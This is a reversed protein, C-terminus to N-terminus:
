IFIVFVQLPTEKVKSGSAWARFAKPIVSTVSSFLRAIAFFVRSYM